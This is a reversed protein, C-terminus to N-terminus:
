SASGLQVIDRVLESFVVPTLEGLKFGDRNKSVYVEGIEQKPETMQMDAGIGTRLALAAVVGGPLRKEMDWIWGADQPEGKRWGREVLGLLKGVPVFQGARRKISNDKAEVDTPAYTDRGIQPFPQLINYDGLIQGFAARTADPLALPHVIGVFANDPLDFAADGADALSSDEAVRFANLYKGEETYVGWILRRVLHVLLPHELFLARFSSVEWRREACMALELRTIQNQAIAKVDKKLAKWTTDAEKAKMADDSKGPKPLDSLTKGSGDMVFPKLAEDFGVRFQRPGFDLTRSGDEDLDLDPVLRDALEDASLGRNQAVEDMKARAKEQLGKFKVKQAVGNLHMLALDSGIRALIDLGSVARAQLNEGPWARILPTLKRAINDGGLLGLQQFGWAEKSPAGARQWENFLAWSFEELSAPDCATFVDELGAYVNEPTSIALMVLLAEVSPRPLAKSRGALLLTPLAEPKAWDGIKPLKAPFRDRPDTSLVAKVAAEVESGYSEAVERVIEGHGKAVLFRVAEEARERAQSHPGVATPILGVAAAKPFKLFWREAPKRASKLTRAHAFFTALRPSEVVDALAAAFHAANSSAIRPYGGIADVGLVVLPVLLAYGADWATAPWEAFARKVDADSLELLRGSVYKGSWRAGLNQSAEEFSLTATKIQQERDAKAQSLEGYTDHLVEPYPQMAARVVIPLATSWRGSIWPPDLLIRPLEIPSAEPRPAMKERLKQLATRAAPRLDLKDALGPHARDIALFVPAARDGLASAAAIADALPPIALAPHKALWQDAVEAIERKQTLQSVMLSATEPGRVYGAVHLGEVISGPYDANDCHLRCVPVVDAGCLDFLQWLHNGLYSSAYSMGVAKKALKVLMPRSYAFHFEPKMGDKDWSARAYGEIHGDCALWDEGLADALPTHDAILTLVLRKQWYSFTPWRATVAAIVAAHAEESLNQTYFAFVTMANLAIEFPGTTEPYLHFASFEKAEGKRVQSPYPDVRVRMTALVADILWSPGDKAISPEAVARLFPLAPTGLPVDLVSLACAAALPSLPTPGKGHLWAVLERITPALEAPITMEDWSYHRVWGAWARQVAQWPDAALEEATPRLAGKRHPMDLSALIVEPPAIEVVVPAAPLPAPAPEDASAQPASAAKPAPAPAASPAAPAAAAAAKKPAPAPAASADSAAVEVYGKKTKEAVLKDHEAQAKQDSPFDKVQSQGATGIKGWQISLQSGDREIQWFKKSSGDVFEFRRM